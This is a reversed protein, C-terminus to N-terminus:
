TRVIQHSVAGNFNKRILLFEVVTLDKGNKTTNALRAQYWSNLRETYPETTWPSNFPTPGRLEMVTGHTKPQKRIMRLPYYNVACAIPRERRQTQNQVMNRPMELWCFDGNIPGIWSSPSCWGLDLGFGVGKMGRPDNITQGRHRKKWRVWFTCFARFPLPISTMHPVREFWGFCVLLITETLPGGYSDLGRLHVEDNNMRIEWWVWAISRLLRYDLASRWQTDECRIPCAECDCLFVVFQPM